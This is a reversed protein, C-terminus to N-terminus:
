RGLVRAPEARGIMESSTRKGNTQTRPVKLGGKPDPPLALDWQLRECLYHVIEDADGLLVIQFMKSDLEKAVPTVYM